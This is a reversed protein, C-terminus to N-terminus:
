GSIGTRSRGAAQLADALATDGQADHKAEGDERRGDAAGHHPVPHGPGLPQLMHAAQAVPGVPECVEQKVHYTEPATGRHGQVGLLHTHMQTHTHTAAGQQGTGPLVNSM